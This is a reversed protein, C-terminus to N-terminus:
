KIGRVDENLLQVCVREKSLGEGADVGQERGRICVSGMRQIWVRIWIGDM